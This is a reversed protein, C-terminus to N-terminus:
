NFDLPLKTNMVLIHDTEWDSIQTCASGPQSSVSLVWCLDQEVAQLAM